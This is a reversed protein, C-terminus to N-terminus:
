TLGGDSFSRDVIVYFHTLVHVPQAPDLRCRWTIILLVTSKGNCTLPHSSNCAYVFSASCWPRLTQLLVLWTPKMDLSWGHRPCHWPFWRACFHYRYYHPQLRIHLSSWSFTKGTEFKWQLMTSVSLVSSISFGLFTCVLNIVLCYIWGIQLSSRIALWCFAM